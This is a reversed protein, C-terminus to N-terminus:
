VFTISHGRWAFEKVVPICCRCDSWVDRPLQQWSYRPCADALLALISTKLGLCAFPLIQVEKWLVILAVKVARLHLLYTTPGYTSINSATCQTIWCLSPPGTCRTTYVKSKGRTQPKLWVVDVFNRSPHIKLVQGLSWCRNWAVEQRGDSEEPDLHVLM